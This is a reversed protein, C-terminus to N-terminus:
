EPLTVDLLVVWFLLSFFLGTEHIQEFVLEAHYLRHFDAERIEMAVAAVRLGVSWFGSKNKEKGLVKAHYKEIINFYLQCQM